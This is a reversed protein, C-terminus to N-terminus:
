KSKIESQIGLDKLIEKLPAKPSLAEKYDLTNNDTTSNPDRSVLINDKAVLTQQVIDNVVQSDQSPNSKARLSESVKSNFDGMKKLVDDLPYLSIIKDYYALWKNHFARLQKLEMQYKALTLQEIEESKNVASLVTKAYSENNQKHRLLSHQALALQRTLEDIQKTMDKLQQKSEVVYADVQAINYGKGYDIDFM